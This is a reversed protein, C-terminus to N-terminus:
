HEDRLYEELAQMFCEGATVGKRGRARLSHMISDSRKDIMLLNEPSRIMSRLGDDLLLFRNRAAEITYYTKRSRCIRRTSRMTLGLSQVGARVEKGKPKHMKDFKRTGSLITRDLWHRQAEAFAAGLDSKRVYRKKIVGDVKDFRIFHISVTGTNRNIRRTKQIHM